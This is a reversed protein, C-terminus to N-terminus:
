RIRNETLDSERSEDFIMMMEHALFPVIDQASTMM